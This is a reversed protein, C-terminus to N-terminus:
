RTSDIKRWTQNTPNRKFDWKGKALAYEWLLFTAIYNLLYQPHKILTQLLHQLRASWNRMYFSDQEVIRVASPDYHLSELLQIMGRVYRARTELLSKFDNAGYSWISADKVREAKFSNARALVGLSYDELAIGLPGGHSFLWDTNWTMLCGLVYCNTDEILHLQMKRGKDMLKKLKSARRVLQGMGSLLVIDNVGPNSHFAKHAYCFLVLIADPEIYDNADINMAIIHGSERAICNGINLANAKGATRTDLHMFTIGGVKTTSYWTNLLLDQFNGKLQKVEVEGLHSFFEDIITNSADDCANTIFIINLNVSWPIDALMLTSLFSSLSLEENHIPIILSFSCDEPRIGVKEEWRREQEQCAYFNLYNHRQSWSKDKLQEFKLPTQVIVQQSLAKFKPLSARTWNRPNTRLFHVPKSKDVM